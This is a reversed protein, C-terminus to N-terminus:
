FRINRLTRDYEILGDYLESLQSLTVSPANISPMTGKTHTHAQADRVTKLATLTAKLRAQKGQDVKKELKEVNILGILRFLMPRFHRDYDFGYTRKVVKTKIFEVNAFSKLYRRACKLVVDDMSEEIWGCLELIALKSCFLSERESTAKAYSRNLAELNELIHKKIIM